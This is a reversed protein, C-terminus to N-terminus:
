CSTVHEVDAHVDDIGQDVKATDSTGPGGIVSDLVGDCANLVDGGPGGNLVDKRTGGELTDSGGDGRLKDSGAGGTLRDNGDDGFVEDDGTGGRIVDRLDTGIGAPCPDSPTSAFGFFGDIHDNGGGGDIEDAGLDGAIRDDDPGGDIVDRQESGCINDAGEGGALLTNPGGADALFDNGPGGDLSDDGADGEIRDVGDEGFLQDGGPGGDISDCVGSPGSGTGENGGLITDAESGGSLTDCGESGFINDRDPGGTITDSGARGFITDDGAGGNITDNQSGGVLTDAGGLGNISDTGGLGCIVDDSATGDLTEGGTSGVITCADEFRLTIDFTVRANSGAMEGTHATVSFTSDGAPLTGIFQSVVATSNSECGHGSTPFSVNISGGVPLQLSGEACEDDPLGAGSAKLSVDAIIPVREAAHLQVFLGSDASAFDAEGGTSASVSGDTHIQRLSGAEDTLETHQEVHASGGGGVSITQDFTNFDSDSASEDGGQGQEPDTEAAVSASDSTRSVESGAKVRAGSRAVAAPAVLWAVVTVAMFAPVVMSAARIRSRM